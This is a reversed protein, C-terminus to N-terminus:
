KILKSDVIITVPGDNQIHVQMYTGFKGTKVPINQNELEKIFLKYLKLAEDPKKAKIFSPRRGKSLDAALTFQSVLLIEGKAQKIDLNMKGQNDSMIRLNAIKRALKKVDEETDDKLIGLLITYGKSIESYIRKNIQVKAKKVRQILAIM